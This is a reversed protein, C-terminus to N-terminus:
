MVKGLKRAVAGTYEEEFQEISPFTAVPTYSVTCKPWPLKGNKERKRRSPSSYVHMTTCIQQLLPYTEVIRYYEDHSKRYNQGFFEAGKQFTILPGDEDEKWAYQLACSTALLQAMNIRKDVPFYIKYALKKSTRLDKGCNPCEKMSKQFEDWDKLPNTTTSFQKYMRTKHAREIQSRTADDFCGAVCGIRRLEVVRARFDITFSLTKDKFRLTGVKSYFSTM